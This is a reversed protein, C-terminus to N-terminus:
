LMLVPVCFVVGFESCNKVIFDALKAFIESIFMTSIGRPLRCNFKRANQVFLLKVADIKGFNTWKQPAMFHFVGIAALHGAQDLWWM